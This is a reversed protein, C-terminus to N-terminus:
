VLWYSFLVQTLPLILDVSVTSPHLFSIEEHHNPPHFKCADVMLTEPKPFLSFSIYAVFSNIHSLVPELFNLLKM